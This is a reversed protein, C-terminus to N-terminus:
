QAARAAVKALGAHLERIRAFWEAVPDDDELLQFGSVCRPWMLSGAVIYDAYAPEDGALWPQAALVARVPELLARFAAVKRGRGAQAAELTTGLRKERTERFYARDGTDVVQFLDLIILPFIGPNLVTDAWANLFRVGASGSGGFLAPRDPYEEDLYEAIALSDCVVRKGDVIVPVRGQNPKPLKAAQRFRWPTTTFELDKHALALKVRWCYPSFRLATDAGALDHLIIPM